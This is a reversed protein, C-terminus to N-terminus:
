LRARANNAAVVVHCALVTGEIHRRGVAVVIRESPSHRVHGDGIVGAGAGELLGTGLALAGDVKLRRM